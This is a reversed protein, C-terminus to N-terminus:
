GKQLEKILAFTGIGAFIAGIIFFGFESSFAISKRMKEPNDKDYYIKITSGETPRHSSDYSNKYTKGDVDYTVYVKYSDNGESNYNVSVDVVTATTNESNKKFKSLDIERFIGFIILGIGVIIFIGFLLKQKLM